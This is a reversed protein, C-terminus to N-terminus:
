QGEPMALGFWARLADEIVVAMSVQRKDAEARLQVELEPPVSLCYRMMQSRDCKPRRRRVGSVEAM